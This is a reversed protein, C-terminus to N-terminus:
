LRREYLEGDGKRKEKEYEHIYHSYVIFIRYLVVAVAVTYTVEPFIVAYSYYFVNLSGRFMYSTIFIIITYVLDSVGIAVLPIVVSEAYFNRYLYGTTYAIFVYILINYGIVQGFLIDQIFGLFVAFMVGENRGQLVSISVITIIILNPSVNNINLFQFFTTSLVSISIIIIARLFNKYM